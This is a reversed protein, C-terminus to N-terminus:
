SDNKVMFCKSVKQYLLIAIPKANPSGGEGGMMVVMMVVMRVLMM